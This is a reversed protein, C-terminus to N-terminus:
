RRGFTCDGSVQFARDGSQIEITTPGEPNGNDLIDDSQLSSLRAWYCGEGDAKTFYIGPPIDKGVLYTGDGFDDYTPVFTKTVTRTKTRVVKTIVPRATVTAEVTATATNTRTATVTPGATAGDSSCAATLGVAALAAGILAKKM